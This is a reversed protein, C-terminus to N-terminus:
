AAYKGRPHTKKRQKNTTSYKGSSKKCANARRIMRRITKRMRRFGREAKPQIARSFNRVLVRFGIWVVIIQSFILLANITKGVTIQDISSLLFAYDSKEEFRKMREICNAYGNKVTELDVNGSSVSRAVSARETVISLYEINTGMLTMMSFLAVLTLVVILHKYTIKM